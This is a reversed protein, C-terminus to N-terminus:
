KEPLRQWQKFGDLSMTARYNKYQNIEKFGALEGQMQGLRGVKLSLMARSLFTRSQKLLKLRTPVFWDNWLVNNRAGYFDMRQWSRNNHSVTHHIEFTPFHYCVLGKQFARASIEMEEGQHILEERYGGVQLFHERHLLHGCGIFFRVQYPQLSQSRSQYEGVVPNYIPFGLCLLQEQSEAFAIAAELSGAVPFSDDDLSLYYKTQISRALQNRRVILGQSEEFRQLDIDLPFDSLDFPCPQDSGDDIILIPLAALGFEEIKTLTTKLDQWRNKTTIGISVLPIM